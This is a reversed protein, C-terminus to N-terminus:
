QKETLQKAFQQIAPDQPVAEIAQRAAVRALEYQKLRLLVELRVRHASAVGPGREVAGNAFRLSKDLQGRYLYWSALNIYTTSDRDDLSKARQLLEFAADPKGTQMYAGALANLIPIHNPDTRLADELLQTAQQFEGAVLHKLARTHRGRVTVAYRTARDTLQDTLYRVKADQGQRLQRDAEELRGMQRYANGLLFHAVRYTPDIAVARELLKVAEDVAKQQLRVDGLGVYGEAANPQLDIVSAFAAEAAILDGTDLCAQGWRQQAPALQPEDQVLEQLLQRYTESDGAELVARAHHLRYLPANPNLERAIVFADRAAPWLENAEYVLALEAHREASTPEAKVRAVHEDVLQRADPELDSLSTPLVPEPPAPPFMPWFAYVAAAIALVSAAVVGGAIAVQRSRKRRGVV